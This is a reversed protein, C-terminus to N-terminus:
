RSTVHINGNFADFRIQPGGRGARGGNFRSSKYVFKGDRREQEAAPQPLPQLEFDTYASGNFTKFWCDASLGPRFAVDVNGNLSGFSCDGTPNQNFVVKIGGNITHARGSGAIENMQIRGNIDEVDYKGNVGEVRIDGDNITQLDLDCARPVRIQFDYKVRYFLRRSRRSGDECRFPGDVYLEIRNDKGSIKLEVEKKAQDLDVKSRARITKAIELEVASGDYGTVQISGDVSDVSLSKAASPNSFSLAKRVLEKEIEPYGEDYRDSAYAVIIAASMLVATTRVARKM